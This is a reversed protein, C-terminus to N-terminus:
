LYKDFFLSWIISLKFYIKIFLNFDGALIVHWDYFNDFNSSVDSVKYPGKNNVKLIQIAYILLYLNQDM